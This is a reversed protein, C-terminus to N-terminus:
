KAKDYSLGKDAWDTAFDTPLILVRLKQFGMSHIATFVPRVNPCKDMPCCGCYIVLNLDRPLRGAWKKIEDLGEPTSGTGRFLANKIHGATFLRQYGVFLVTPAPKATALERSLDSPAITQGPHWPDPSNQAHTLPLLLLASVFFSFALLPLILSRRKPFM